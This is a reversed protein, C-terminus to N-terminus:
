DFTISTMRSAILQSTDAADDNLRLRSEAAAQAAAGAAEMVPRVLDLVEPDIVRRRGAYQSLRVVYEFTPDCYRVPRPVSVRVHV